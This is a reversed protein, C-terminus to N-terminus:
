DSSYQKFFFEMNRIFRHFLTNTFIILSCSGIMLSKNEVYTTNIM